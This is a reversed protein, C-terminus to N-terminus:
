KALTLGPINQKAKDFCTKCLTRYTGDKRRRVISESVDLFSMPGKCRNCGATIAATMEEEISPTTPTIRFHPQVLRVFFVPMGAADSIATITGQGYGALKLENVLDLTLINAKVLINQDLDNNLVPFGFITHYTDGEEFKVDDINFIVADGAKFPHTVNIPSSPAPLAPIHNDSIVTPSWHGYNRIPEKYNEYDLETFASSDKTLDFQIIKEPPILLPSGLLKNSQRGNLWFALGTESSITWHSDYELLFLPREQNRALNLTKQKADFWVLAFSGKLLGLATKADSQSLAKTIAHSDVLSEQFLQDNNTVTGNHVLTIDNEQFPHANEPATHGRTASRNHGIVYHYNSYIRHEFEQYQRCKTFTWGDTDGKMWDVRGDKAVGFVGTADNGRITNMQLMQSFLEVETFM